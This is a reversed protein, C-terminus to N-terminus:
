LNGRLFSTIGCILGIIITSGLLIGMHSDGNNLYTQAEKLYESACKRGTYVLTQKEESDLNFKLTSIDRDEIFITRHTHDEKQLKLDSNQKEYFCMILSTVFENRTMETTAEAKYIEWYGNRTENSIITKLPELRFGLTESNVTNKECKNFYKKKDFLRIPYNDLLGGDAYLDKKALQRRHDKKEYCRHPRFIVPLSMSIRAADSIIVDPTGEHSFVESENTNLNTGMLYLQKYRKPDKQHLEYLEGFTAHKIKTKREIKEELWDLIKSGEALGKNDLIYQLLKQIKGAEDMYDGKGFVNLGFSKTYYDVLYQFLARKKIRRFGDTLYSLEKFFKETAVRTQKRFDCLIEFSQKKIDEDPIDIFNQFDLSKLEVNLEELSCGVSLLVATIAGVSTGGIRKINELKIGNEELAELAGIYSIGKTSGGQFVYNKIKQENTPLLGKIYGYVM